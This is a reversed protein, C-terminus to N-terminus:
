RPAPLAASLKVVADNLTQTLLAVNEVLAATRATAESAARASADISVALEAARKVLAKLAVDLDAIQKKMADMDTQSM